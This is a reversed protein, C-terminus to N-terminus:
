PHSVVWFWRDELPRVEEFEPSNGDSVYVYSSPRNGWKWSDRPFVVVITTGAQRVVIPRLSRAQVNVGRVYYLMGEERHLTEIKDVIKEYNPVCFIFDVAVPDILGSVAIGNAILALLVFARNKNEIYRDRVAVRYVSYRVFLVWLILFSFFYPVVGIEGWTNYLAISFTKSVLASSAVVLTSVFAEVTTPVLSRRIFRTKNRKLTM